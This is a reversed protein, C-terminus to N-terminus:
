FAYRLSLRLGHSALKARTAALDLPLPDRRRGGRSLTRDPRDETSDARAPRCLGGAHRVAVVAGRSGIAPARARPFQRPGRLRPAPPIRGAVRAASRARRYLRARTRACSGDRFRRGVAAACRRPGSRLRLAGGTLREFLGSGRVRDRVSPRSGDPGCTSMALALTWATCRRGASSRPRRWAAGNRGSRRSESRRPALPIGM